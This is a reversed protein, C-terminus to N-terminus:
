RNEGLCPRREAKASRCMVEEACVPIHPKAFQNIRWAAFDARCVGEYCCVGELLPIVHHGNGGRQGTAFAQM